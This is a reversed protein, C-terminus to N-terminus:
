KAFTITKIQNFKKDKMAHIIQIITSSLFNNTEWCVPKPYHDINCTYPFTQYVTSIRKRDLVNDYAIHQVEVECTLM